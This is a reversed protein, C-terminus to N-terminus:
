RTEDISRKRNPFVRNALFDYIWRICWKHDDMANPKTTRRYFRVTCTLDQATVMVTQDLGYENALQESLTLLSETNGLTDFVDLVLSINSITDESSYALAECAVRLRREWDDSGLEHVIVRSQIDIVRVIEVGPCISVLM